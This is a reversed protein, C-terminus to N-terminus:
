IYYCSESPRSRECLSNNNNDFNVVPLPPEHNMDEMLVIKDEIKESKFKVKLLENEFWELREKETVTSLELPLIM